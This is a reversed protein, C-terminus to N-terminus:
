ATLAEREDRADQARRQKAERTRNREADLCADCPAEGHRIHRRYAADTGCPKFIRRGRRATLKHERRYADRASPTLGGYIGFELNFEIAYALCERAVPCAGCIERVPRLAEANWRDPFFTEPDTGRCGAQHLWLPLDVM